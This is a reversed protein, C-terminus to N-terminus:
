LSYTQPSERGCISEFLTGKANPHFIELNQSRDSVADLLKKELSGEYPHM